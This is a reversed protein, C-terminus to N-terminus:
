QCHPTAHSRGRIAADVRAANVSTIRRRIVTGIINGRPVVVIIVMWIIVSIVPVVTMICVSTTIVVVLVMM